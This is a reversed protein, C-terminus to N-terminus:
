GKGQHQLHEDEKRAVMLSTEEQTSGEELKKGRIDPGMLHM